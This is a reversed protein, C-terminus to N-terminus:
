NWKSVKGLYIDAVLTGDFKLDDKVGPVNYTAVVGGACSPFEVVADLGGVAELESKSMPADSAAFHVTKDTIARIGGGSGISQYDILVDPPSSPHAVVLRKYFPAPFTAGAGQLRVKSSSDSSRCGSSLAVLFVCVTAGATKPILKRLLEMPAGFRGRKQGTFTAGTVVCYATIADGSLKRGSHSYRTFLVMVLPPRWTFFRPTPSSPLITSPLKWSVRYSSTTLGTLGLVRRSGAMKCHVAGPRSSIKTRAAVDIQHRNPSIYWRTSM